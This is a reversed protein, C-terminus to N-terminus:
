SMIKYLYELQWKMNVYVNVINKKVIYLNRRPFSHQLLSRAAIPRVLLLWQKKNKKDSSKKTSRTFDDLATQEM